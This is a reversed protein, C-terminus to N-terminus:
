IHVGSAYIEGYYFVLLGGHKKNFLYDEYLDWVADRDTDDGVALVIGSKVGSKDKYEETHGLLVYKDPYLDYGDQLNIRNNENSVQLM